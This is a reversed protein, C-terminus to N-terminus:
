LLRTNGFLFYVVAPLATLLPSSVWAVRQPCFRKAALVSAQSLLLAAIASLAFTQEPTDEGTSLLLIGLEATVMFLLPKFMKKNLNSGNGFSVTGWQLWLLFALIWVPRYCLVSFPQMEFSYGLAPAACAMSAASYYGIRRLSQNCIVLAPVHIVLAPFFYPLIYTNVSRTALVILAIVPLLAMLPAPAAGERRANIFSMLWILCAAAVPIEWEMIVIDLCAAFALAWCFASLPIDIRSKQIERIISTLFRHSFATM